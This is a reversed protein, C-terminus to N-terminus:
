GNEMEEIIYMAHYLKPEIIKMLRKAIKENKESLPNESFIIKRIDERADSYESKIRLSELINWVNRAVQSKMNELHIHTDLYFGYVSQCYSQCLDICGEIKNFAPLFVNSEYFNTDTHALLQDVIPDITVERIYRLRRTKEDLEELFPQIGKDKEIHPNLLNKFKQTVVVISSTNKSSHTPNGYKDTKEIIKRLGILINAMANSLITRTAIQWKEYWFAKRMSEDIQLGQAPTYQITKIFEFSILIETRLIGNLQIFRDVNKEVSTKELQCTEHKKLIADVLEGKNETKIEAQTIM